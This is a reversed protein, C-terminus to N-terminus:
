VVGTSLQAWLSGDATLEDIPRDNIALLLAGRDLHAAGAPSGEHVWAIRLRGMADNGLTYGLGDFRGEGYFRNRQEVLQMGSWHDLDKYLMRDLLEEPTAVAAYDIPPIKDFWLYYETMISAIFGKRGTSTCDYTTPAEEDM